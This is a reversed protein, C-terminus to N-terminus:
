AFDSVTIPVSDHSFPIWGPLFEVFSALFADSMKGLGIGLM